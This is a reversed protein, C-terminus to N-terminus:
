GTESFKELTTPRDQLKRQRLWREVQRETMNLEIAKEHIQEESLTKRESFVEELVGNQPAKRHPASRLNMALIFIFLLVVKVILLVLSILNQSPKVEADM